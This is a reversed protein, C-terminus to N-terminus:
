RRVLMAGVVVLVVGFLRLPTIGVQALGFAGLKDLLLAMILQGGISLTLFFTVGIRPAAFAALAVFVAGYLGGVWAYWPLSRTEAPDPRVGLALAAVVLAVSGIVFSILAANVPSGAGRALLANTPAQLALLTGAAFAGVMAFQM